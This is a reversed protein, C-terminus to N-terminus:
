IGREVVYAFRSLRGSSALERAVELHRQEREFPEAGEEAVLAARHRERAALWREAHAVVGASTDERRLLRLGAREILREDAGSPVVRHGPRRARDLIEDARAPGTLVLPDSIFGKAGPRMVRAWERFATERDPLYHVVDLAVLADAGSDEFFALDAADAARFHTRAALGAAEAAARARAICDADLDVGTVRAAGLRVLHLAPGGHGCGVDLVHRATTAGIEAAFRELEERTTWGIQQIDDSLAERRVRARTESEPAGSPRGATGADRM